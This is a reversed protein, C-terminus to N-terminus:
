KKVKRFFKADPHAPLNFSYGLKNMEQMKILMLNINTNLSKSIQVVDYGERAMEYVEENDLLLHAAFANAEYETNDRINFLVFEQMSKNEKALDRHLLDHGIEHAAVMQLMYEDLRSNLLIISKKWKYTYMGLLEDFNDVYQVLIDLNRAIKLANRTESRQVLANAKEYIGISDIM